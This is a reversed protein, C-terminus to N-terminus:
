GLCLDYDRVKSGMGKLDQGQRAKDVEYVLQGVSCAMEMLPGMISLALSVMSPTPPELFTWPSTPPPALVLPLAISPPPLHSAVNKYATAEVQSVVDQERFLSKYMNAQTFMKILKSKELQHQLPKATVQDVELQVLDDNIEDLLSEDLPNHREAPPLGGKLM